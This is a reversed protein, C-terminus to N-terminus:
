CAVGPDLTEPNFHARLKCPLPAGEKCPKLPEMAELTITLTMKPKQMENEQVVDAVVALAELICPVVMRKRAKPM